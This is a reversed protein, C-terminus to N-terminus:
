SSTESSGSPRLATCHLHTRRMLLSLSLWIEQNLPRSTVLPNVCIKPCSKVNVKAGTARQSDIQDIRQM